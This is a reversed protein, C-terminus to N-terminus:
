LAPAYNCTLCSADLQRSMLILYQMSRVDGAGILKRQIYIYIYSASGIWWYHFPTKLNPLALSITSPVNRINLKWAGRLKKGINVLRSLLELWCSPREFKIHLSPHEDCVSFRHMMWWVVRECSLYIIYCLPAGEYFVYLLPPRGLENWFM